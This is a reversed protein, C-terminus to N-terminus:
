CRVAIDSPRSARVKPLEPVNFVYGTLTSPIKRLHSVFGRRPRAPASPGAHQALGPRRPQPSHLPAVARAQGGSLAVVQDTV